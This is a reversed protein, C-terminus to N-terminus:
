IRLYNWVMKLKKKIIVNDSIESFIQCIEIRMLEEYMYELVSLVPDEKKFFIELM